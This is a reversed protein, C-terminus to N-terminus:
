RQGCISRGSLISAHGKRILERVSASAKGSKCRFRTHFGSKLGIHEPPVPLTRRHTSGEKGYLVDLPNLLEDSLTHKIPTLRLSIHDVVLRRILQLDNHPGNIVLVSPIQRPIHLRLHIIQVTLHKIPGNRVNKRGHVVIVKVEVIDAVHRHWQGLGLM